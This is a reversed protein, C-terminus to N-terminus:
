PLEGINTRDSLGLRQLVRATLAECDAGAFPFAEGLASRLEPDLTEQLRRRARLARTKVTQPRIELVEATEEISLGEIERLVFVMRFPDPLLAIANELLKALQKHMIAAEPSSRREPSGMLKERYEDMVLVSSTNLANARRKSARKRMLSENIVIRTLWTALSSQGKFTEIAAFARLYGEQVADEAEARNRLISWAARFLRQNNRQTVLRVAQPERRGVCAALDLDPLNEYDLLARATM